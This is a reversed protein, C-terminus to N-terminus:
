EKHREVTFIQYSVTEDLGIGAKRRCIEEQQRPTDVGEIDPLLLGHRGDAASVILGYKKPNLSYRKADLSKPPSLIDVSYTLNPLEEGTVPPFRPDQSAAAIANAVIEKCICDKTPLYTGICGRLQGSKTHLSTFVGAKKHHVAVPLRNEPSIIKGTRVFQEVANRALKVYPDM